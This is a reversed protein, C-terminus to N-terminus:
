LLGSDAFSCYNKGALILHDIVQVGLFKGGGVLKHTLDIDAQSPTLNGSPHNHALIISSAKQHLAIEFIMRPDVVTSNLGGSSIRKKLILKSSQNLYLAWFEEHSLGSLNDHLRLFADRSSVIKPSDFRPETRRRLEMAAVIVMAQAEGVGHISQLDAVSLEGLEDLNNNAAALAKRSIEVCSRDKTGSRLIIALLEAKNLAKKGENKLKERPKEVATWNKFAVADKVKM